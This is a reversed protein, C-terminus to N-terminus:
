DGKTILIIDILKDTEYSVFIDQTMNQFSISDEVKGLQNFWIQVYFPEKYWGHKKAINAWFNRQTEIDKKNIQIM